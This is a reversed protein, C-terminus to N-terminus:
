EYCKLCFYEINLFFFDLKNSNPPNLHPYDINDIHKFLILYFMVLAFIYWFSNYGNAINCKKNKWHLYQKKRRIRAITGWKDYVHKSHSFIFIFEGVNWIVLINENIKKNKLEKKEKEHRVTRYMSERKKKEKWKYHPDWYTKKDRAYTALSFSSFWLRSYFDKCM